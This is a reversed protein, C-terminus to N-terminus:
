NNLVQEVGLKLGLFPVKHFAEWLVQWILNLSSVVLVASLRQRATQCSYRLLVLVTHNGAAWLISLYQVPAVCVLANSDSASANKSGIEVASGMLFDYEKLM